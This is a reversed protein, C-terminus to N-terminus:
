LILLLSLQLLILPNSFKKLFNLPRNNTVRSYTIKFKLFLRSQISQHIPNIYSQHMTTVIHHMQGEVVTYTLEQRRPATYSIKAKWFINSHSNLASKNATQFYGNILFSTRSVNWIEAFYKQPGSKWIIILNSAQLIYANRIYIGYCASYLFSNHFKWLIFIQPSFQIKSIPLICKNVPANLDLKRSKWFFVKFWM